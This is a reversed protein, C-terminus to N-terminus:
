GAVVNGDLGGLRADLAPHRIVVGSRLLQSRAHVAEAVYGAFAAQRVAGQIDALKTGGWPVAAHDFSQAGTPATGWNAGPARTDTNIYPVGM